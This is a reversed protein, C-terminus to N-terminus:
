HHFIQLGVGLEFNRAPWLKYLRCRNPNGLAVRVWTIKDSSGSKSDGNRRKVERLEQNETHYIQSFSCQSVM